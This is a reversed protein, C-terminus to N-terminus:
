RCQTVERNPDLLDYEQLYAYQYQFDVVFDGTFTYQNNEYSNWDLWVDNHKDFLYRRPVSKEYSSYIQENTCDLTAVEGDLMDQIILEEGTHNNRISVNGVGRKTIVLTPRIRVDGENFFEKTLSGRVDLIESKPPSFGFPSNTRVNLTIYGQKLGNHILSSDGEFMAYFVRHPNSEFYLPKYEDTFLWRAVDRLQNRYDRDILAIAIPFSLPESDVRVYYPASRGPVSQEVISRNPLFFEDYLGGNPKVMMVGKDQSSKGDFSFHLSELM